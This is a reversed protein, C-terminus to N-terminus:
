SLHPILHVLLAVEVCLTLFVEGGTVPVYHPTKGVQLLTHIMSLAVIGTLIATFLQM